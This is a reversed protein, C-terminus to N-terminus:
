SDANPADTPAPDGLSEDWRLLAGAESELKESAEHLEGKLTDLAALARDLEAVTEVYLARTSATPRRDASDAVAFLYVLQDVLRPTAAMEGQHTLSAPQVLRGEIEELREALEALSARGQESIRSSWHHADGRLRRIGRIARNVRTVQERVERLFGDQERAEDPTSDTRPDLAIELPQSLRRGDVVLTVTHEGPVAPPACPRPGDPEVPEAGPCRLDWVLRHAGQTTAMRREDKEGKAGSFRAVIEGAPNAIELRVDEGHDRDLFYHVVAGRPPNEGADLLLAADGSRPPTALYYPKASPLVQVVVPHDTEQEKPLYMLMDLAFRYATKPRYLQPAALAEGAARARLPGLDDLIWFSRGHTAAILDDHAVALDHIPVIPLNLALQQWRGGDDFSVYVGTETGCFLLGACDPDHRIARTYDLPEIGDTIPTWSLGADTTKFLYPSRDDLKYRTAALYAADPDGASPEVISILSWEPLGDPTVDAWSEGGDTTLHVRGDDSGTWIVGPRVPSEAITFITCYVEVGSNDPSIPGGSAAQKGPDDRTLDPSVVEWTEGEDKSRFLVNSGVYLVSQDHPSLVIPSTWQFRYRYDSAALGGTKQPWPSIDRRQRSRRNYRTIRGGEGGGSSGAYVVDPDDRSVAVYGSESGGVEYWERENLGLDEDRSPISITSNDQQAGYVRYPFRDDTTVHYMEGTPQGFVSSWSDGGDFSVTAGGDCGLIMRKPDRPDIWLAHHDPHPSALATWDAGGNVSKWLLHNLVYLTEHDTPHATLHMYYFARAGLDARDSVRHWAEGGDDSRFLGGGEAEVIAWVRRTRAPSVAVGIKGVPGAELGLRPTLDEWSDGGDRSRFLGSGEGGSDLRWPQRRVNWLAAFLTRPNAQDLCVDVAGADVGGTLVLEWSRAGDESRYLGREPNPGFAHGLAAVYLRSPNGPDVAIKGIHRTEELGAPVWTAGGDESRYVGDGPSINGRLSCEGMGAYLVNPHSESIALAGVSSTRFFGDSVNLWHVGGNTTKWVGGGTSGFLFTFQEGPHGVAAVVRGGRFPGV